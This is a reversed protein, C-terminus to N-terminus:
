IRALSGADSGGSCLSAVLRLVAASLPKRLIYYENNGISSLHEQLIDDKDAVAKIDAKVEFKLCASYCQLKNDTRRHTQGTDTVGLWIKVIGKTIEKLCYQGPFAERIM